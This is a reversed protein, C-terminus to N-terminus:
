GALTSEIGVEALWSSWTEIAACPARRRISMASLAPVRSRCRAAPRRAPSRSGDRRQARARREFRHAVSSRRAPAADRRRGRVEMGVQLRRRASIRLPATTSAAPRSRGARRQVHRPRWSGCRCRGGSGRAARCSARRGLAPEGLRRQAHQHVVEIGVDGLLRALQHDIAADAAGRAVPLAEVADDGRQAAELGVLRQQHLRALRDADEAGMGVRRAHQDGVGVQHRVPRGPLMEVLEVALAQHHEALHRRARPDVDAALADHLAGVLGEDLHAALVVAAAEGAAPDQGRAQAAHAARLRHGRGHGAGRAEGDFAPRAADLEAQAGAIEVQWALSRSSASAIM